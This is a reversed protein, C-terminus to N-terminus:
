YILHKRQTIYLIIFLVTLGVGFMFGMGSFAFMGIFFATTLFPLLEGILYITFGQKKLKRMQIAGVICLIAALLTLVFIPIRNEYNKTVMEVFNEKDPMISKMWSPMKGSSMQEMVKDREDYTKKANIFGFIGGILQFASGIFTLITLVNLTSPLKPKDFDDYRLTDQPNTENDM